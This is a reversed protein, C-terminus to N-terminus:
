RKKSLNVRYGVSARLVTGRFIHYEAIKEADPTRYAYEYRNERVKFLGKQYMVNFFLENQNSFRINKSIGMIIHPNWYRWHYTFRDYNILINPDEPSPCQALREGYNDDSYKEHYALALGGELAWGKYVYRRAVLATYNYSYANLRSLSGGDWDFGFGFWPTVRGWNLNFAWPSDPAKQYSLGIHWQSNRKVLRQMNCPDSFKHQVPRSAYNAGVGLELALRNRLRNPKQPEAGREQKRERTGIRHIYSIAFRTNTGRFNIKSSHPVGDKNHDIYYREQRASVRFNQQHILSFSILGNKGTRISKSLGLTVFPNLAIPPGYEKVRYVFSKDINSQGSGGIVTTDSIHRYRARYRYNWDLGGGVLVDFYRFSHKYAASFVALPRRPQGSYMYGPMQEEIYKYKEGAVAVKAIHFNLCLAKKATKQYIYGVGLHTGLNGVTTYFFDNNPFKTVLQRYGFNLGTSFSVYKKPYSEQARAPLTTLVFGLLLLVLTSHKM